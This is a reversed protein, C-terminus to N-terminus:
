KELADVKSMGIWSEPYPLRPLNHEGVVDSDFVSIVTVGAMAANIAVHTGVGGVGIVSIASPTHFKQRKYMENTDM